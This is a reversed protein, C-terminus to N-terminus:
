EEISAVMFKLMLKIHKVNQTLEADKLENYRRFIFDFEESFSEEASDVTEGTGIIGLMESGITYGDEDHELACHLPWKLNYVRDKFVIIEPAFSLVTKSQEFLEDIKQRRKGTPDTTLKVRAVAYSQEKKTTPEIVKIVLLQKTEKKFPKLSYIKKPKGKKGKPMEVLAMPANGVSSRFEYLSNVVDTRRVADPYLSKTEIYLGKDAIQMLSSFRESVQQRQDNLNGLSLQVRPTFVFEPVASGM